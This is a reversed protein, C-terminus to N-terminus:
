QPEEQLRKQLRDSLRNLCTSFSIYEPCQDDCRGCGVCMDIGFRRRFDYVKHFTKFRMRAGKEQRFSHGGAMDTFGDLHCGSWVRRREGCTRSDGFFIDRMTFCSCSVCSVNCRGCAICRSDYERWMEDSYMFEPMNAVDPLRVSIYNEEVFKPTFDNNQGRDAFFATFRADVVQVNVSDPSIRLAVAYDDTKHANMSVCFCNEFSTVCEILFFHLRQRRRAYYFDAQGGNELFIKDLRKIGNIDCARLLVIKPRDNAPQSEVFAQENFLFMTEDPPFLLSKPSLDSKQELVLEDPSQLPAYDILDDGALNGRGPFRKPGFIEYTKALQAFVEAFAANTLKM